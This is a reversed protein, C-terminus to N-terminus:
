PTDEGLIAHVRFGGDPRAGAELHGGHVGVRERMGLLGKGGGRGNGAPAAAGRGDDLVEVEVGQERYRVHVEASARGAHKLTNTLAEQVIRYASLEIGAPLPRREGEVRLAVPLGAQRMHDVLGPLQGLGPQPARDEGEEHRRLVGVLQQLEAIAQRSGTEVASIAEVAEEPRRAFLTRAVGAQVGMLSVHHAVVDHLERAIRVREELVARRAEAERQLELERNQTELTARYERLRRVIVGL